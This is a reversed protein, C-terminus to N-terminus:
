RETTPKEDRPSGNSSSGDFAQDLRDYKITPVQDDELVAQM